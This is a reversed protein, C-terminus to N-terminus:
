YGEKLISSKHENIVEDMEQIIVKAIREQQFVSINRVNNFQKEYVVEKQFYKYKWIITLHGTGYVFHIIQNGGVEYLNFSRKDLKTLKGRGIFAYQNIAVVLISFKEDITQVQLDYNDKNLDNFFNFLIFIIFVILITFFM